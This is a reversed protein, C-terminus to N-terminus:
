IVGEQKAVRIVFWIARDVPSPPYGICSAYDVFETETEEYRALSGHRRSIEGVGIAKMYSLVHRDLIALGGGKGCDRLFMSAQKPGFGSVLRVLRRRMEFPGGSRDLFKSLTVGETLFATRTASLQRARSNPFRYRRLSSGSWRPEGLVTAVLAEYEAPKARLSVQSPLLRREVLAKTALLASSYVVQSSLVCRALVEWLDDERDMPMSQPPSTAIIGALRRVARELVFAVTM